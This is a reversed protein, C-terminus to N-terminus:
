LDRVPCHEVENLYAYLAHKNNALKREKSRFPRSIFIQVNNNDNFLFPTTRNNNNIQLYYGDNMTRALTTCSVFSNWEM